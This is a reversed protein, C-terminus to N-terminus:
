RRLAPLVTPFHNLRSFVFCHELLTHYSTMCGVVEDLEGPFVPDVRRQEINAIDLEDVPAPNLPIEEKTGCIPHITYEASLSKEPLM